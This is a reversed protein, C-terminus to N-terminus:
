AAAVAAPVWSDRIRRRSRLRACTAMTPTDWRAKNRSIVMSSGTPAAQLQGLRKAAPCSPLDDYCSDAHEAKSTLKVVSRDFVIIPLQQLGKIVV